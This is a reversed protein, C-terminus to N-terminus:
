LARMQKTLKKIQKKFKKAKSAQGKRKANKAKKKLKKLTRSLDALQASRAAANAAAARAAAAAEAAVVEVDRAGFETAGVDLIGGVIREFKRQDSLFASTGAGGAPNIAPSGTMPLITETPGGNDALPGLLPDLPTAEDGVFDGLPLVTSASGNDRTNDGILNIGSITLLNDRNFDPGEGDTPGTGALNGAILCDTFFINRSGGGGVSYVGGGDGGTVGGNGAQNNAFTCQELTM